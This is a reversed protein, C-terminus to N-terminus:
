WILLCYARREEKEAHLDTLKVPNVKGLYQLHFVWFFLSLFFRCYLFRVSRVWRFGAEDAPVDGVWHGKAVQVRFSAGSPWPGAIQAVRIRKGSFDITALGITTM